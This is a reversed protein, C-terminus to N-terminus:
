ALKKIIELAAVIQESVGASGPELALDHLAEEIMQPLYGSIEPNSRSPHDGVREWTAGLYASGSVLKGCVIASAKVESQWAQWEDDDESTFGDCDKSIPGCDNDHEWITEISISSALRALTALLESAKFTNIDTKMIHDGTEITQRVSPSVIV